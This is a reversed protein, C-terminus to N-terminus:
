RPGATELYPFPGANQNHHRSPRNGVSDEKDGNSASGAKGSGGMARSEPMYIGPQGHQDPYFSARTGTSDKKDGDSASGAKEGGGM